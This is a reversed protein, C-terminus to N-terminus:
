KLREFEAIRRRNTETNEVLKGDPDRLLTSQGDSTKGHFLDIELQDQLKEWSYLQPSSKLLYARKQRDLRFLMKAEADEELFNDFYDTAPPVLAQKRIEATSLSAAKKEDAVTKGSPDLWQGKEDCRVWTLDASGLRYLEGGKLKIIWTGQHTQPDEYPAWGMAKAGDEFKTSGDVDWGLNHQANHALEHVLLSEISYEDEAPRDNETVPRNNTSGPDILIAPEGHGDDRIYNAITSQTDDRIYPEQLFYFRLGQKGDKALFSPESHELAARIGVLEPLTPMRSKLMKGYEVSGDAAQHAQRVADQNDQSFRVGYQASLEQMMSQARKHVLDKAQKLGEATDDVSFLLQDKGDAKLHFEMVKGKRSIMLGSQMALLGFSARPPQADCLLKETHDSLSQRPNDEIVEGRDSM